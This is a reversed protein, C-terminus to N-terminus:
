NPCSITYNEAVTEKWRNRGKVCGNDGQWLVFLDIMINDYGPYRICLDHTIQTFVGNAFPYSYINNEEACTQEEWPGGASAVCTDLHMRAFERARNPLYIDVTDRGSFPTYTIGDAGEISKVSVVYQATCSRTTKAAVLGSVFILLILILVGTQKNM